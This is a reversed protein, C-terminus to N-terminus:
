FSAKFLKEPNSLKASQESNNFELRIIHSQSSFFDYLLTNNIEVQKIQSSQKYELYMWVTEKEIEYGLYVPDLLQNNVKLQLHKKLYDQILSNIEKENKGNILDVKQQYTKRLSEEFDNVFLKVSTEITKGATNYKFYCIGLYFPHKIAFGFLGLSTILVIILKNRFPM